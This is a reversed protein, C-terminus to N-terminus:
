GVSACTWCGLTVEMAIIKFNLSGLSPSHRSMTVWASKAAETIEAMTVTAGMLDIAESVSASQMGLEALSGFLMMM